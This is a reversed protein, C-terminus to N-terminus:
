LLPVAVYEWPASIFVVARQDEGSVVQLAPEFLQPQEWLGPRWFGYCHFVCNEMSIQISHLPCPVFPWKNKGKGLENALFCITQLM